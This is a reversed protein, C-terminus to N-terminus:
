LCAAQCAALTGFPVVGQCGGWTFSECTETAPDFYYKKFLAMCPGTEPVLFCEAPRPALSDVSLDEVVADVAADVAADITADITSDAVFVDPTFGADITSDAGIPNADALSADAPRSDVLLTDPLADAAGGFDRPALPDISCGLTLILLPFSYVVRPM